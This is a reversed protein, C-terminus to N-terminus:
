VPAGSAVLPWPRTREMALALDLLLKDDHRAAYAQL